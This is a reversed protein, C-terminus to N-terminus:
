LPLVSVRFGHDAAELFQASIESISETLPRYTFQGNLLSRHNDFYYNKQSTIATEKTLMPRKGSILTRLKDLRWATGLIWNKAAKAPALKHLGISIQDLLWKYPRNEAVLLYQVEPFNYELQMKAFLAVDRVDVFGNTGTPYFPSQRWVHNFFGNSGANWFGSGLIIAPNLIAVELGEEKGRWVEMESHFKTLSYLSNHKNEEFRTEETILGDKLKNRGLSAISSIHVLKKVEHDIALNVVNATGQVNTKILERRDRPDFSVLAACHIIGTAGAIAEELGLIDTIETNHWNIQQHINTLLSFDSKERCISHVNTYGSHLLYRVVYSGLLGTAGTVLIKDTKNVLM